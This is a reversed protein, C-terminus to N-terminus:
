AQHHKGHHIQMTRADIAPELADHPYPLPPLTFDSAAARLPACVLILTALAFARLAFSQRVHASM